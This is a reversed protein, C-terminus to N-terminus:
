REGAASLAVRRRGVVLSWGPIALVGDNRRGALIRAIPTRGGLALRFAIGHRGTRPM